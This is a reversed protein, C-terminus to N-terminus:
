AGGRRMSPYVGGRCRLAIPYIGGKVAFSKPIYGGMPPIYGTTGRARGVQPWDLMAALLQGTQNCDDDIAQPSPPPPCPDIPIWLSGYPDM